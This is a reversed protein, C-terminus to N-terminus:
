PVGCPHPHMSVVAAEVTEVFPGGHRTLGSRVFVRHPMWAPVAGRGPDPQSYDTENCASEDCQGQDLSRPGLPM